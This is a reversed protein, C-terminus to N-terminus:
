RLDIRLRFTRLRATTAPSTGNIGIPDCIRSRHERAFSRLVGYVAVSALSFVSSM